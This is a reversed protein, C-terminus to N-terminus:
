NVWEVDLDGGAEGLFTEVQSRAAADLAALMEDRRQPHMKSLALCMIAFAANAVVSPELPEGRLPDLMKELLTHEVTTAEDKRM